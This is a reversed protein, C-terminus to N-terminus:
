SLLDRVFPAMWAEMRSSDRLTTRGIMPINTDTMVALFAATQETPHKFKRAAIAAGIGPEVCRLSAIERGEFKFPSLLDFVHETSVPEVAAASEALAAFPDDSPEQADPIFGDSRVAAEVIGEIWRKAKGIDRLSLKDIAPSPLDSILRILEIWVMGDGGKEAAAREAAAQQQTLPETVTMATFTDDGVYVASTLDFTERLLTREFLPAGGAEKTKTM